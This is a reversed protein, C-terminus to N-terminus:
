ESRLRVVTVADGGDYFDGPGFSEVIPSRALEERIVQRLIGRGRGHIIMAKELHGKAADSLYKELRPLAEDVTLGHLDLQLPVDVSSVQYSVHAKPKAKPGAKPTFVEVIRDLPVTMEMTAISVKVSGKAPLVELVEAPQSFDEVRVYGGVPIEEPGYAAERAPPTYQFSRELDRTLSEREEDVIQKRIRLDEIDKQVEGPPKPSEKIKQLTHGAAQHLDTLEEEATRIRKRLRELESRAELQVRQLTERQETELKSQKKQLEARLRRVRELEMERDREDRAANAMSEELKRLMVSAEDSQEDLLAHAQNLVGEDM